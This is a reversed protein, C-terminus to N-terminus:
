GAAGRMQVPPAVRGGQRALWASFWVTVGGGDEAMVGADGGMQAALHRLHLLRLGFSGFAGFTEGGPAVDQMLQAIQGPALDAAHNRLRFEVLVGLRSERVACVELASHGSRALSLGQAVLSHLAHTLRGADGILCAPLMAMGVRLQAGRGGPDPAHRAVVHGVIEELAVRDVDLSAANADIDARAIDSVADLLGLLHNAAARLRDRCGPSPQGDGAWRGQLVGLIAHVAPRMEDAAAVMFDSRVRGDRQAQELGAQLEPLRSFEGTATALFMLVHGLVLAALLYDLPTGAQLLLILMPLGLLGACIRLKLPEDAVLPRVFRAVGSLAGALLFCLSQDAEQALLPVAIAWSAALLVAADAHVRTVVPSCAMGRRPWGCRVLHLGPLAMGVLWVLPPLMAQRGEVAVGALLLLGLGLSAMWARRFDRAPDPAIRVAASLSRMM